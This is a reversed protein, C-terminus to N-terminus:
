LEKEISSKSPELLLGEKFLAIVVDMQQNYQKQGGKMVARWLAMQGDALSPAEHLTKVAQVAYQGNVNTPSDDSNCDPHVHKILGAACLGLFAGRPCVKRQSSTGKGFLATSVQEWADRPTMGSAAIRASKVACKGYKGM